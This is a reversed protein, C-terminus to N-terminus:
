RTTSPASAAANMWRTRSSTSRGAVSNTSYPPKAAVIRVMGGTGADRRVMFGLATLTAVLHDPAPCLKPHVSVRTQWGASTREELLDHVRALEADFDLFCTSAPGDDSCVYENRSRPLPPERFSFALTGGPALISSADGALAGVDDFSPLHMVTDGMRLAGEAPEELQCTFARFDDGIGGSPVEGALTRLSAIFEASADVAVVGSGRGALPIAHRGFGAGLDVLPDCHTQPLGLSEVEIRGADLTSRAGSEMWIYVRSRRADGHEAARTM